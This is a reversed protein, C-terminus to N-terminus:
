SLKIHFKQEFDKVKENFVNVVKIQFGQPHHKSVNKKSRLNLELEEKSLSKFKKKWKAVTIKYCYNDLKDGFKGSLIKEGALKLWTQNGRITEEGSVGEFLTNPFFEKLWANAQMLKWYLSTNCTPILTALETATFINKDQIELGEEDIFYNVCFYKHSNFLFIRKFGVLLMRCIWLRGPKTIIFYDADSKKDAYGKSLSGSLYIGRVFPFGSILKSYRKVTKLMKDATIHGKKRREVISDIDQEATSYFGSKHKVYGAQVLWILEDEVEKITTPKGCFRKLENVKLPFQFIEFYLLSRLLEHPVPINRKESATGGIYTDHTHM